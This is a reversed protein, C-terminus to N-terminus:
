GQSKLLFQPIVMLDLHRDVDPRAPRVQQQSYRRLDVVLDLLVFGKRLVQNPLGFVLLVRAIGPDRQAGLAGGGGLVHVGTEGSLGQRRQEGYEIVVRRPQIPVFLRLCYPSTRGRSVLGEGGHSPCM